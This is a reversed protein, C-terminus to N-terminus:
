GSAMGMTVWDTRRRCSAHELKGVSFGPTDKEVIFANLGKHRLSKDTSAFVVVFDAERGNSIFIKNGNLLYGNQHHVATTELSVPDSGAGPETLGFAAIKEGKAIPTLFRRNQEDNGFFNLTYGALGTSVSIIVCTSSCVRSIEEALISLETEGGGAGGYEESIGIGTLGLEAMRKFSEAPFRAEEDIEAAIPELEKTAFDHLMAKLMKQDETFEFDM